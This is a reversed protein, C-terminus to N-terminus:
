AVTSIAARSHINVLATLTGCWHLIIIVCCHYNLVLTVISLTFLPGDTENVVPSPFVGQLCLAMSVCGDVSPIEFLEINQERVM